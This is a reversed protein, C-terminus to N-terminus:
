GREEAACGGIRAALVEGVSSRRCEFVEDCSKAVPITATAADICDGKCCIVVEAMREGHTESASLIRLSLLTSLDIGEDVPIFLNHM